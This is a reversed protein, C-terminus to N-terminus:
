PSHGFLFIWDDLYGLNAITSAHYPNAGHAEGVPLELDFIRINTLPIQLKEYAAAILRWASWERLV